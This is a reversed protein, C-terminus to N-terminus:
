RADRWERITATSDKSGKKKPLPTITKLIKNLRLSNIRAEIYNRIDESWNINSAKMLAKVDKPVRITIVDSM